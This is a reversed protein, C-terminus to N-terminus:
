HFLLLEVFQKTIYQLL